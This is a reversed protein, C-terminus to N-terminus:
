PLEEPLLISDSYKGIETADSYLGLCLNVM